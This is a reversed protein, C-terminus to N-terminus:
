NGALNVIRSFLQRYEQDTSGGFNPDRNAAFAADIQRNEASVVLVGGTPMADRANKRAAGIRICGRRPPNQM